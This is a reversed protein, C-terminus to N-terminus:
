QCLEKVLGIMYEDDKDPDFKLSYIGNQDLFLNTFIEIGNYRSNQGRGLSSIREPGFILLRKFGLSNEIVCKVRVGKKAWDERSIINDSGKLGAQLDANLTVVIMREVKKAANIADQIPIYAAEIDELPKKSKILDAPVINAAKAASKINIFVRCGQVNPIEKWYRSL